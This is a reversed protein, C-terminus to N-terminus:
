SCDRPSPSTYLLCFRNLETQQAATMKFHIAIRPLPFSGEVEGQDVASALLPHTNGALVFAQSYQLDDHIRAPPGGSLPSAGTCALFGALVARYLSESRRSEMYVEQKSKLWKSAAAVRLTEGRVARDFESASTIGM